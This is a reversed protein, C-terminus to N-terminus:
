YRTLLSHYMSPIKNGQNFKGIYLNDYRPVALNHKARLLTHMRHYGIVGNGNEEQIIFM